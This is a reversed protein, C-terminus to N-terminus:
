PFAVEEFVLQDEDPAILVGEDLEPLPHAHEGAGVSANDVLLIGVRAPGNGEDRLVPLARVLQLVFRILVVDWQDGGSPDDLAQDLRPNDGGGRM